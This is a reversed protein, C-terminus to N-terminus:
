ALILPKIILNMPDNRLSLIARMLAFPRLMRM